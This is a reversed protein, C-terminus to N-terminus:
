DLCIVGNELRMNRPSPEIGSGKYPLAPKGQACGFPNARGRRGTNDPKVIAKPKAGKIRTSAVRGARPLSRSSFAARPLAM